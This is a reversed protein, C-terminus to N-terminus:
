EHCDKRKPFNPTYRDCKQPIIPFHFLSIPHPIWGFCVCLQTCVNRNVYFAFLVICFFLYLHFSFSYCFPSHLLTSIIINTPPAGFFVLFLVFGIFAPLFFSLCLYVFSFLLLLFLSSPCNNMMCIYTHIHTFTRSSGTPFVNGSCNVV